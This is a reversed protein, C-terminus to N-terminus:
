LNFQRKSSHKRHAEMVAIAPFAMTPAVVGVDIYYSNKSRIM